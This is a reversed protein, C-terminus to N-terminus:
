LRLPYPPASSPTGHRAWRGEKDDCTRSCVLLPKRSPTTTRGTESERSARPTIPPSDKRNSHSTSFDPIFYERIERAMDKGSDADFSKWQSIEAYSCLAIAFLIQRGEKVDRMRSHLRKCFDEDAQSNSIFCSYFQIAQAAGALSPIYAILNDPV